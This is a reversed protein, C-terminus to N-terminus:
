IDIFKWGDVHRWVRSSLINLVANVILVLSPICVSSNKQEAVVCVKYLLRYTSCCVAFYMIFEMFSKFVEVFYFILDLTSKEKGRQHHFPVV